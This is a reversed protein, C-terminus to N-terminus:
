DDLRLDAVMSNKYYVHCPYLFLAFNGQKWLTGKYSYKPLSPLNSQLVKKNNNSGKSFIM